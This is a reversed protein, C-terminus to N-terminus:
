AIILNYIESLFFLVIMLPLGIFLTICTLALIPLVIISRILKNNTLYLLKIPCTMFNLTRDLLKYTFDIM